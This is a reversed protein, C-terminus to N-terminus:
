YGPDGHTQLQMQRSNKGSLVVWLYLCFFFPGEQTQALLATFFFSHAESTSILFKQFYFLLHQDMLFKSTRILAAQVTRLYSFEVWIKTVLVSLQFKSKGIPGKGTFLEEQKMHTIKPNHLGQARHYCLGQLYLHMKTLHSIILFPSWSLTWHRWNNCISRKNLSMYLFHICM